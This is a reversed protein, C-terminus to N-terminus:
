KILKGGRKEKLLESGSKRQFYILSIITKTKKKNRALVTLMYKSDIFKM